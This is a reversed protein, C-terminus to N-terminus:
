EYGGNFQLLKLLSATVFFLTFFDASHSKPGFTIIHLHKQIIHLHKQIIHLHKQIIHLRKQIIHLHKEIIVHVSLEQKVGSINSAKEIYRGKSICAIELNVGM